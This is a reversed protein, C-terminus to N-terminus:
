RCALLARHQELAVTAEQQQPAQREPAQQEAVEAAATIPDAVAVGVMQGRGQHGQEVLLQVLAVAAELAVMAAMSLEVAASDVVPQPSQQLFRIIALQVMRVLLPQGLAVM